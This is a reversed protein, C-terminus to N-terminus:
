ELMKSEMQIVTNSKKMKEEFVESFLHNPSIKSKNRFIELILLLLESTNQLFPVRLFKAFNVPFSM